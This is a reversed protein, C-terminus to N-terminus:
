LKIDFTLFCGGKLSGFVSQYYKRCLHSAVDDGSNRSCIGDSSTQAHKLGEFDKAIVKLRAPHHTEMRRWRTHIDSFVPFIKRALFAPWANLAM